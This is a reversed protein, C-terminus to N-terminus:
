CKWAFLEIGPSISQPYQHAEGIILPSWRWSFSEKDPRQLNPQEAINWSIILVLFVRPFALKLHSLNFGVFVIVTNNSTAKSSLMRAAFSRSQLSLPAATCVGCFTIATL